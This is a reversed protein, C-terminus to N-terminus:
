VRALSPSSPTRACRACGSSGPSSCSCCGWRCSPSPARSPDLHPSPFRAPAAPRPRPTAGVVLYLVSSPVSLVVETTLDGAGDEKKEALGVAATALLIIALLVMTWALVVSTRAELLHTRANPRLAGPAWLRYVVFATSFVDLFSSLADAIITPTSYGRAADLLGVTWFFFSIVLSALTVVMAESQGPRGLDFPQSFPWM